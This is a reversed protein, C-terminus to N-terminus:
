WLRLLYLGNTLGSLSRTCIVSVYVDSRVEFSKIVCATLAEGSATPVGRHAFNFTNQSSSSTSHGNIFIAFTDGSEFAIGTGCNVWATILYTGGAEAIAKGLGKITGASCTTALSTGQTLGVNGLDNM